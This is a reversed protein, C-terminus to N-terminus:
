IIRQRCHRSTPSTPRTGIICGDSTFDRQIYHFPKIGFRDRSCFLQQKSDDWIAFAWMGIFHQVCDVGWRRYAALIVETDGSTTFTFGDRELETRLELYNYVEGNYSITGEFATMPQHSAASLDIISLRNHGLFIPPTCWSGTHDPGRHATIGLMRMGLDTLESGSLRQDAIALIGCM